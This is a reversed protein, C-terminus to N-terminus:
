QRGGQQLRELTANFIRERDEPGLERALLERALQVATESAERALQTHAAEIRRAAEQEVQALFRAAESEGQQALAEREREGDRRLRERLSAIEEQLGAVRAEMEQRLEAAEARQRTAEALQQAISERRSAFFSRLPKRLLYALGGFFLVFNFTKWFVPPLGWVTEPGGAGGSAWAPATAALCALFACVRAFRPASM